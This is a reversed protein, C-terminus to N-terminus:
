RALGKVADDFRSTSELVRTVAKEIDTAGGVETQRAALDREVSQIAAAARVAFQHVVAVHDPVDSALLALKEQLTASKTVTDAAEGFARLARAPDRAGLKTLEEVANGDSLRGSQHAARLVTLM